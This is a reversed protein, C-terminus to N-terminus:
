SSVRHRELSPRTTRQNTLDDVPMHELNLQVRKVYPEALIAIPIYKFRTYMQLFKQVFEARIESNDFCDIALFTLTKYIFPATRSKEDTFKEFLHFLFAISSMNMLASKKERTGNKMFQIILESVTEQNGLPTGVQQPQYHWIEVLLAMAAHRTLMLQEVSRAKYAVANTKLCRDMLLQLAGRQLFVSHWKPSQTLHQLVTLLM